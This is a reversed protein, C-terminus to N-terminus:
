QVNNEQLVETQKTLEIFQFANEMSKINVDPLPTQKAFKVLDANSLIFHLKEKAEEALNYSSIDKFIEETTSEQAFWNYRYELYMRIIDSLRSYYKKQEDHQWLKEEDLKELERKAWIHAPEKPKTREATVTEKKKRRFVLYYVVAAIIALLVLGGIIYPIFENLSYPVSVPAKIPKIPKTTDVAVTTVSVIVFDSYLSDVSNSKSKTFILLPGARYKGSDYASVTFTQSLITENGNQTTDISGVKILEMNGITDTAVPITVAIDKPSRVTLKLKLFDGILIHTSDAKLTASVTQASLDGIFSVCLLLLFLRRFLLLLNSRESRVPSNCNIKNNITEMKYKVFEFESLTM